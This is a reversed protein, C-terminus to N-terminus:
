GEPDTDPKPKPPRGRKKPPTDGQESPPADEEVVPRFGAPPPPVSPSAPPKPPPTYAVPPAPPTPPRVRPPKVVPTPRLNAYRRELNVIVARVEVLGRLVVSQQLADAPLWVSEGRRLRLGVDPAVAEAAVCTVHLERIM